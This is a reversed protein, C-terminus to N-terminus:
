IYILRFEDLRARMAQKSVKFKKALSETVPIVMEEYEKELLKKPMLLEVAFKNAAAERPSKDLRFSAVIKRPDGEMHLYCHGLEHAITFRAREDSDDENVLIIYANGKKQIAGSIKLNVKEEIETFDVHKIKIRDKECISEVDIPLHWLNPNKRLVARATAIPSLFGSRM